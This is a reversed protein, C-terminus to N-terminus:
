KVRAKAGIPIARDPWKNWARLQTISTGYKRSLGWYTDGKKIVHYKPQNAPKQIKSVPKKKGSTTVLKRAPKQKPPAKVWSTKTIRIKRLTISIAMGNKVNQDHDESIDLIIVNYAATKGVYKVIKGTNMINLLKNLSTQWNDSLIYGTITFESPRKAVHDTYPEGKEVPYETAEVKHKGSEKEIFLRVDGLKAM